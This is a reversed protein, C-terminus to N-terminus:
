HDQFGFTSKEPYSHRENQFATRLNISRSPLCTPTTEKSSVAQVHIKQPLGTGGQTGLSRKNAVELQKYFTAVKCSTFLKSFNSLCGHWFNSETCSKCDKSTSSISYCKLREGAPVSELWVKALNHLLSKNKVLTKNEYTIYLLSQRVLPM